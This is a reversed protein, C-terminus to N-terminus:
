SQVDKSSQGEMAKKCAEEEKKRKANVHVVLKKELKQIYFHVHVNLWRRWWIV